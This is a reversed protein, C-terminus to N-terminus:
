CTYVYSILIHDYKMKFATRVHGNFYMLAGLFAFAVIGLLTRVSLSLRSCCRINACTAAIVICHAGPWRYFIVLLVLAAGGIVLAWSFADIFCSYRAPLPPHALTLPSWSIRAYYILLTM